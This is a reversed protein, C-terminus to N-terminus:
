HLNREKSGKSAGWTHTAHSVLARLRRDTASEAAESAVIVMPEPEPDMGALRCAAVDLARASFEIGAQKARAQVIEFAEQYTM